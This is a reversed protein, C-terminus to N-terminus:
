PLPAPPRPGGPPSPAPRDVGSGPRCLGPLVPPGGGVEGAEAEVAARNPSPFIARLGRVDGPALLAAQWGPRVRASGYGRVGLGESWALLGELDAPPRALAVRVEAQAETDLGALLLTDIRALGALVAPPPTTVDSM